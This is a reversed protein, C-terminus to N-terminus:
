TTRDKVKDTFPFKVARHSFGQAAEARKVFGCVILYLRTRSQFPLPNRQHIRSATEDTVRVLQKDARTIKNGGDVTKTELDALKNVVVAILNEMVLTKAEM